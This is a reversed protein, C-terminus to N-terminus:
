LTTRIYFLTYIFVVRKRWGGSRFIGYNWRIEQHPFKASLCLKRMTESVTGKRLVEVGPFWTFHRYKECHVNGDFFLLVYKLINKTNHKFSIMHNIIIFIFIFFLSCAYSMFLVLGLLPCLYVLYSLHRLMMTTSVLMLCCRLSM